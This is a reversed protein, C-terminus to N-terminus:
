LFLISMSIIKSFSFYKLMRKMRFDRYDNIWVMGLEELSFPSLTTSVGFWESQKIKELSKVLLWLWRLTYILVHSM